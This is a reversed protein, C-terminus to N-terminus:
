LPVIRFAFVMTGVKCILFRFSLSPFFRGSVVCATFPRATMGGQKRFVKGGGPNESSNRSARGPQRTRPAEGSWKPGIHIRQGQRGQGMFKGRGLGSSGSSPLDIDLEPVVELTLGAPTGWTLCLALPCFSLASRSSM